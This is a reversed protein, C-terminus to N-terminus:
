LGREDFAPMDPYLGVVIQIVSFGNDHRDATLQQFGEPERLRKVLGM